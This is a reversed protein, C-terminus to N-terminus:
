PPIQRRIAGTGTWQKRMVKLSVQASPECPSSITYWNLRRRHTHTPHAQILEFKPWIGGDVGTIQGQVYSFNIYLLTFVRAGVNEIPDEENKCTLLVVMLDACLEFKPWIPGLSASNRGKIFTLFQDKSLIKLISPCFEVLNQICMIM